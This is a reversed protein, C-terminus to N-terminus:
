LLSFSQLLIYKKLNIKFFFNKASNKKMFVYKVISCGAFHNRKIPRYFTQESIFDIEFYKFAKQVLQKPM